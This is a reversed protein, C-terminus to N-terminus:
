VPEDKMYKKFSTLIIIGTDGTIWNGETDNGYNEAELSKEQYKYM